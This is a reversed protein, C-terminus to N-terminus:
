CLDMVVSLIESLTKKDFNNKVELTIPGLKLSIQSKEVSKPVHVVGWEQQKLNVRKNYEQIHRSISSKNIKNEQCLATLNLGSSKFNKILEMWQAETRRLM